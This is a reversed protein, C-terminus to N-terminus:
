WIEFLLEGGVQKQKAEISTLIGQPTSVIAYGLGGLVPKMEKKTVYWRRGPRSFIKVQTFLPVGEEYVLVMKIEKKVGQKTISYSKVYGLSELKKVISEKFMSHPSTVNEKRALYGNKIRILLDIISNNM